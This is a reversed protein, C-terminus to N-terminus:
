SGIAALVETKLELTGMWPWGGPEGAGLVFVSGGLVCFSVKLHGVAM